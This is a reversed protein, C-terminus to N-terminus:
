RRATVTAVHAPAGPAPPEPAFWCRDPIPSGARDGKVPKPWAVDEADERAERRSECILDHTYVTVSMLVSCGLALVGAAVVPRRRAILGVAGLVVVVGGLKYLALGDWGYLDLCAAALPNAEVASPNARLLAFTMLWDTASLLAFLGMGMWVALKLFM